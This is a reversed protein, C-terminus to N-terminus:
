TSDAIQVVASDHIGEALLEPSNNIEPRQPTDMKYLISADFLGRKEIITNLAETIM